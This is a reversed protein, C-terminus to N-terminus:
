NGELADIRAIAEQLAATLLPIMKSQDIGQYRPNGDSDVADKVGTVAQPVVEAAEHAIFGDVTEDPEIKFNFRSPKLKLLRDIANTLPVVNEKLRYDSGSNYTTATTTISIDGVSTTTGRYFYAIVGNTTKRSLRLAEGSTNSSHIVGNVLASFDTANSQWGSVTTIGNTYINSGGYILNSTTLIGVINAAGNSTMVSTVTTNGISINGGFTNINLTAVSGNSVAQIGNDDLRLNANNTPGIQFPHSGESLSYSTTSTVRVTNATVRGSSTYVNGVTTYIDGATTYINGSSTYINGSSTYLNGDLTRINGSSTYIANAASISGTTKIRQRFSALDTDFVIVGPQIEDTLTEPHPTWVFKNSGARISTYGGNNQDYMGTIVAGGSLSEYGSFDLDKVTAAIEFGASRNGTTLKLSSNVNKYNTGYELYQYQGGTLTTTEYNSDPFLIYPSVSDYVGLSPRVAMTNSFTNNRFGIQDFYDLYASQNELDINLWPKASEVSAQAPDYSIVDETTAFWRNTSLESGYFFNTATSLYVNDAIYGVSAIKVPTVPVVGAGDHSVLWGPIDLYIDSKLEYGTPDQTRYANDISAGDLAITEPITMAPIGISSDLYGLMYSNATVTLYKNTGAGWLAATGTTAVDILSTPSGASYRLRASSIDLAFDYVKFALAFRNGGSLNERETLTLAGTLVYPHSESIAYFISNSPTVGSPTPCVTYTYGQSGDAITHPAYFTDLIDDGDTDLGADVDLFVTDGSSFGHSTSTTVKLLLSYAGTTNSQTAEATGPIEFTMTSSTATAVKQSTINYRPNAFNEITVYQGASFPLSGLSTTYTITTTTATASTVVGSLQYTEIGTISKSAPAYNPFVTLGLYLNRGLGFVRYSDGAAYDIKGTLYSSQVTSWTLKGGFSSSAKYSLSDLVQSALTLGTGATWSTNAYVTDVTRVSGAVTIAGPNSGIPIILTSGTTSTQAQWTGNYENPVIGTIIVSQGPVVGHAAATTISINTTGTPTQANIATSKIHEFSPNEILNVDEASVYAVGTNSFYGYDFERKSYDKVYLGAIDPNYLTVTGIATNDVPDGSSDLDTFDIGENIYSITDGAVQIISVPSSLASFKDVDNDISIYVRDGLLFAHGPTTITAINDRRYKSVILNPELEYSKFLGVYTGDTKNVDSDGIASSELFTGYLTIDGFTRSVSPSSINWYGITGSYANIDGRVFVDSFEAVGSGSIRWGAYNPIYNSSYIGNSALSLEDALSGGSVSGDTPGLGTVDARSKLVSVEDNISSLYASFSKTRTIRRGAM